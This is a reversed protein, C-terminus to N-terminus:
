FSDKLDDSSLWENSLVIDPSSTRYSSFNIPNVDVVTSKM